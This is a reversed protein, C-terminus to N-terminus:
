GHRKVVEHIRIVELLEARDGPLLLQWGSLGIEGFDDETVEFTITEANDPLAKIVDLSGGHGFDNV